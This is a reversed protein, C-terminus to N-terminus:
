IIAETLPDLSPLKSLDLADALLFQYYVEDTYVEVNDLLDEEVWQSQPAPESLVILGLPVTVFFSAMAALSMRWYTSLTQTTRASVAAQRMASLRQLDDDSLQQEQQYLDDKISM